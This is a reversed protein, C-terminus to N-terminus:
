VRLSKSRYPCVGKIIWQFKTKFINQLLEPTIDLVLSNLSPTLLHLM